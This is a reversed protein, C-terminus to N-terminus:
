ACPLPPVRATLGRRLAAPRDRWPVIGDASQAFLRAVTLIDAAAREDLDGYVYTWRGPAACAIACARNCNSLCEAPVVRLDPGGDQAQAAAVAEYLRRGARPAQPDDGARRCTVCVFLTAPTEAPTKPRPAACPEAPSAM